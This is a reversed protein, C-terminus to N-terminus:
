LINRKFNEAESKASEIDAEDFFKKKIQIRKTRFKNSMGYKEDMQNAQYKLGDYNNRDSLFTEAYREIAVMAMILNTEKKQLLLSVANIENSIKSVFILVMLFEINTIKKIKLAERREKSKTSTLIFRDLAKILDFYRTKLAYLSICRGSRRTPNLAEL